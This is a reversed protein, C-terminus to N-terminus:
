RMQQQMSGMLQEKRAMMEQGLRDMQDRLEEEAKPLMEREEEDAHHEVDQRLQKFLTTFQPDDATMGRLQQMLQKAEGHEDYAHAVQEKDQADGASRMAPYFIEEEISAHVELEMMVQDAIQQKRQGDAGEFERFLKRVKDHDQKLMQIPNM